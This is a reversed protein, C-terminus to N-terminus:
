KSSKASDKGAAVSDRGAAASAPVQRAPKKTNRRTALMQKQSDDLVTECETLMEAQLDALQKALADLKEQHKRRITYIEERQEPTLGLQGFLPPVRRSTDVSRKAAPRGASDAKPSPKAEQAGLPSTGMMMVAVAGTALVGFRVTKTM